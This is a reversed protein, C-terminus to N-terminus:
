PHYLQVKLHKWEKEWQAELQENRKRKKTNNNYHINTTHEKYIDEVVLDKWQPIAVKWRMCRRVIEPYSSTSRTITEQEM